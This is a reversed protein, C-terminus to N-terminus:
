QAPTKALEHSLWTMGAVLRPGPRELIDRPVLHLTPKTKENLKDYGLQHRIWARKATDSKLSASLVSTMVFVHQPADAVIAESSIVPYPVKTGTVMNSLGTLSFLSGLWTSSSVSYVPNFDLVVLFRGKYPHAQLTQIAKQLDAALTEAKQTASLKQGLARIAPPLETVSLAHFEITEIKLEQLRRLLDRPNGETALVKTPKLSVITELNPAVFSGVKALAQAAAPFNSDNSVGVLQSEIGFDYCLETLNPALSVIREQARAPPSCFVFYCFLLLVFRSKRFKLIM